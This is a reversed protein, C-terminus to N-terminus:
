TPTRSLTGSPFARIKSSVWIEHKLVTYSLHLSTGEIWEVTEISCRSSLGVSVCVSVCLCLAMANRPYFQPISKSATIVQWLNATSANARTVRPYETDLMCCVAINLSLLVDVVVDFRDPDRQIWRLVIFHVFNVSKISFHKTQRM